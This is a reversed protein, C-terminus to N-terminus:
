PNLTESETGSEAAKRKRSYEAFLCVACFVQSSCCLMGAAIAFVGATIALQVNNYKDKVTSTAILYMTGSAVDLIAALCVVVLGIIVCAYFVKKTVKSSFKVMFFLLGAIGVFPVILVYGASRALEDKTPWLAWGTGFAIAYCICAFCFTLVGWVM